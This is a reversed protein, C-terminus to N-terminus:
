LFGSNLILLGFKQRLTFLHQALYDGLLAKAIKEESAKIRNNKLRALARPDREGELISEIINMGPEGTIDSIVYHLKLNMQDLAKQMRQVYSSATRVIADGHRRISRIAGIQGPPRFSANLLGVSHLYELWQCDMVDSKGGPVNSVHKSNVLCVEIGRSELVQCVPMWYVGTSELAVTQIGLETLWDAMDYLAQTFHGFCRVCNDTKEPDVAVFHEASASIDIGAAHANITQRKSAKTRKKSQTNKKTM